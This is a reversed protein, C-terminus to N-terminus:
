QRLLPVRAERSQAQAGAKQLPARASKTNVPETKKANRSKAREM